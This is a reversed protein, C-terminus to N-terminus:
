EKVDAGCALTLAPGYTDTFGAPTETCVVMAANCTACYSNWRGASDNSRRHWGTMDHGNLRAQEFAGRKRGALEGFQDVAYDQTIRRPKDQSLLISKRRIVRKHLM